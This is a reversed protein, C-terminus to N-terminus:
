REVELAFVSVPHGPLTVTLTGGAKIQEISVWVCDRQSFDNSSMLSDSNLTELRGQWTVSSGSLSVKSPGIVNEAKSPDITLSATV